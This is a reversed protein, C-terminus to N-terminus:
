IINNLDNYLIPTYAINYSFALKKLLIEAFIVPPPPVCLLYRFNYCFFQLNYIAKIICSIKLERCSNSM